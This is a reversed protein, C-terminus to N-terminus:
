KARKTEVQNLLEQIETLARDVVDPTKHRFLILESDSLGSLDLQLEVSIDGSADTLQMRQNVLAVRLDPSFLSPGFPQSYQQTMVITGEDRIFQVTRAPGDGYFISLKANQIDKGETYKDIQLTRIINDYSNDYIAFYVTIDRTTTDIQFTYWAKTNYAGPLFVDVFGQSLIEGIQIDPAFLPETKVAPVSEQVVPTPVMTPPVAVVTPLLIPQQPTVIAVQDGTVSSSQLSTTVYTVLAVVIVVAIVITSYLILRNPGYRHEPARM